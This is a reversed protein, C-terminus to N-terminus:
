IHTNQGGRCQKSKGTSMSEKTHANQFHLPLVLISSLLTISARRLQIKDIGSIIKLDKVPLVVELANIFSPLLINVGDLDLRFLDCSNMLIAVVTEGCCGNPPIALGQQIALYFRALYVPLIEEGTKKACIVRCLVGLAAARGSEFKDTTLCSPIESFSSVSNTESYSLSSKASDM